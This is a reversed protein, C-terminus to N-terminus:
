SGHKELRDPEPLLCRNKQKKKDEWEELVGYFKRYM